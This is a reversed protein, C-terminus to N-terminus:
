RRVFSTPLPKLIVVCDNPDATACCELGKEKGPVKTGDPLTRVTCEDGEASLGGRRLESTAEATAEPAAEADTATACGTSTFLVAGALAALSLASTFATRTTM